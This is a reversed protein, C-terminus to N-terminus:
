LPYGRLMSWLRAVSDPARERSIEYGVHETNQTHPNLQISWLPKIENPLLSYRIDIIRNAFRPDAAVYGMSFWRFREVDQAQLSEPDLWPFDRHLDLMPLSQGQYVIPEKALRVADVYYHDGDQYITKWLLLNAFSPKAEVIAPAHGRAQALQRGADQAADRAVVGLLLYGVVWLLGLIAPLRRRRWRSIAILLLLPLSLLPDIISVNNWAFRQDSFPWFLLTGYSTCADLLGHTAYGLLTFLYMERFPSWAGTVWRAGIWVTLAVIAAGFPIFVLSHTFQRHYELFLLPDTSSRIVVDLDPAMGGAIGCLMALGMNQSRALSQPLAAGLAGQTVPDM